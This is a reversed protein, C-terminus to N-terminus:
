WREERNREAGRREEGSREAGRREGGSVVAGKQERIREAGRRLEISGLDVHM